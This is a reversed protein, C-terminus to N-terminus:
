MPRRHMNHKMRYIKASSHNMRRELRMRELPTLTGGHRARERWYTTRIREHQRHMRRAERRTLAGSDVGNVIRNHQRVIRQHPTAAQAPLTSSLALTAALVAGGLITKMSFM